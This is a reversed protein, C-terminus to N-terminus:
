GMWSAFRSMHFTNKNKIYFLFIFISVYIYIYMCNKTTDLEELFFCGLFGRFKWWNSPERCGWAISTWSWPTSSMRQLFSLHTALGGEFKPSTIHKKKSCHFQTLSSVFHQSTMKFVNLNWFLAHLKPTPTRWKPGRVWGMGWWQSGGAAPLHADMMGPDSKLMVMTWAPVCQVPTKWATAGQSFIQKFFRTLHLIHPQSLNTAM